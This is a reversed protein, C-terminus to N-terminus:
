STWILKRDKCFTSRSDGWVGIKIMKTKEIDIKLGSIQQFEQLANLTARLNTENSALYLTTDDAYLSIIQEKEHVEIGKITKNERVAAAMIKAALVFVYPSVPDGQRCGRHCLVKKWFTGM